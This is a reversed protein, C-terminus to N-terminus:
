NVAEQTIPEPRLRDYHRFSHGCDPCIIRFSVVFDKPQVDERPVGVIYELLPVAWGCVCRTKEFPM